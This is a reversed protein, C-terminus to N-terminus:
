EAATHTGSAVVGDENRDSFKEIMPIDFGGCPDAENKLSRFRMAHMMLEPMVRIIERIDWKPVDEKIGELIRLCEVSAAPVLTPALIPELVHENKAINVRCVYFSECGQM